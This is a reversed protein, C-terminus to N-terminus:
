AERMHYSKIMTQQFDPYANLDHEVLDLGDFEHAERSRLRAPGLLKLVPWIFAATVLACAAAGLVTLGLQQSRVALTGSVLVSGCLAGWLGGIGHIAIVSVPDDLKFRIDITLLVVVVIVGATAGVIVGFFPRGVQGSSAAILGGLMGVLVLPVDHKAYRITCFVGVALGGAAAALVRSVVMRADGGGFVAWGILMMFVGAGVLPLNHGPIASTSGDRHYKGERPGVKWALLMAGVASVIHLTLDTGHWGLDSLWGHTSWFLTLPALVAGLLISVWVLPGGRSREAGAAVVLGGVIIVQGMALADIPLLQGSWLGLRHPDVGFISNSSSVYAAISAGVAWFAILGVCLDMVQRGLASGAHKARSVGMAYLTWGARIVLAAVLFRWVSADDM